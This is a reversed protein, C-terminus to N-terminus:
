SHEAGFLDCREFELTIGAVALDVDGIVPDAKLLLIRFLDKDDELTQVPLLFIFSCTDAQRDTFLDDIGVTTLDKCFSLFTLSCYEM